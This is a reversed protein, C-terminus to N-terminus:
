RRTLTLRHAKSECHAYVIAVGPIPEVMSSGCNYAGGMPSKMACYEIWGDFPGSITSGPTPGVAAGATGSFAVYTSPSLQEVLPPDHGGDLWFGVYDAAVGIHFGNFPGLFTAGGATVQFSTSAPATLYPAPAVTAPYTRVRAEDPLSSCAPDATFTLMYDGSIDAPPAIPALFFPVWPNAGGASCVAVSCHWPGTAAVYGDRTARFRDTSAFTGTFSFQGSSDSTTSAGASQGDVVEVTAGALPRFGSDQVFGSIRSVVGVAPPVAPSVPSPGVVTRSSGSGGCGAALSVVLVAIAGPIKM